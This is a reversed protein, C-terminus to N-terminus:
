FKGDRSEFHTPKGLTAGGRMVWDAIWEMLQEVKVRPHGFLELSKQANSLLATGSEAGSFRAQRKMLRAFQECVAGVSLVEQGAVNIAFPPTSLHGFAQLAMANADGQWIVNFHGMSLNVAEGAWVKQALDVLVGYRLECAYNLRILAMPIRRERSFFEFVRERGLCSMAYEGVPCPADTERSGGAAVSTLGYVNGTSFAAIRSRVFKRCVVGPLYSNMAWTAAEQGTSGFKMGTMFIANAADPLKAVADEDLLNCSITEIGNAQLQRALSGSSFRSVGIIRRRVKAADSARKVM